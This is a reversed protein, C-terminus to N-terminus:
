EGEPPPGLLPRVEVGGDIIPVFKALEVAHDIDRAEIIFFGTIQQPVDYFAGKTVEDGRVTRAASASEAAFGATLQGGAQEIKDPVEGHAELIEPPIEEFPIEKEYILVAFQPM